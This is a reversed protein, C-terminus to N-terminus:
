AQVNRFRELWRASETRFRRCEGRNRYRARQNGIGDVHACPASLGNREVELTVLRDKDYAGARQHQMDRERMPQALDDGEEIRAVDEPGCECRRHRRGEKPRGARRLGENGNSRM